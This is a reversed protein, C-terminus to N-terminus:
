DAKKRSSRGRLNKRHRARLCLFAVLLVPAAVLVATVAAVVALDVFLLQYWTADASAPRLHSANRWQLVDEVARVAADLPPVPQSRLLRSTRRAAERESSGPALLQGLAARFAALTRQRIGIGVGHKQVLAMAAFQDGFRPICLVPVGHWLAELVGTRGCATVLLQASPHALIDAQPIWATDVLVNRPVRVSKSAGASWRAVVKHPIESFATMLARQVELPMASTEMSSGLSFVVVGATANDLMGQLHKPLPKAQIHLGAAHVVNPPMASAWGFAPHHNYITLALKSRVLEELSPAKPSFERLLRRQTPLHFVFAGVTDFAYFIVNQARQLIDMSGDTALYRNAVYAPHTPGGMLHAVGADDAGTQVAVFPADFRHALGLLAEQKLVLEGMVLDFRRDPRDLVVREFEPHLLAHEVARQGVYWQVATMLFPWAWGPVVNGANELYWPRNTRWQDILINSSFSDGYFGLYIIERFVHNNGSRPEWPVALTVSHGREALARPLATSVCLHDDSPAPLVVLIDAAWAAPCMALALLIVAVTM